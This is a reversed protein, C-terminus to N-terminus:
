PPFNLAPGLVRERSPTECAGSTARNCPIRTNARAVLISCLEGRPSVGAYEAAEPLSAREISLGKGLRVVEDASLEVRPLDDVAGLLPLLHEPLSEATLSAPDVADAVRFRGIATRTLASMVAATGLSEALDRGLSRVYTGSGCEIELVLEPYEYSKIELRHVVIPRPQLDVPKGQRALEYARRGAVKLASYAPPRQLIEGSFKAAAAALQAFSPRPPAAREVVQGEIDETDSERGLLFTGVYTKPMRQVHEILRTAAGVCCVLVGNALPDLTGAHGVKRPRALRQVLNVVDRSTMGSPKNLNLLGQLTM